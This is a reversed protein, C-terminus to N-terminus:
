GRNGFSAMTTGENLSSQPPMGTFSTRARNMPGRKSSSRTRTSSADTCRRSPVSRPRNRSILTPRAKDHEHDHPESAEHAGRPVEDSKQRRGGRESQSRSQGRDDRGYTRWEPKACELADESLPQPDPVSPFGIPGAPISGVVEVKY